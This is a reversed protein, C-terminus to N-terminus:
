PAIETLSPGPFIYIYIIASDTYLHLGINPFNWRMGREREKKRKREGGKRVKRGM